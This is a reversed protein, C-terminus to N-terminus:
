CEHNVRAFVRSRELGKLAFLHINDHKLLNDNWEPYMTFGAQHILRLSETPDWGRWRMCALHFELFLIMRKSDSLLEKAGQLVKYEYGEIDMRLLNVDEFKLGQAKIFSDITTGKCTVEKGNWADTKFVSCLNSQDSLYLNVSEDEGSCAYNFAEINDLKNLAINQNLLFFNDPSPEIAFVKGNGIHRAELLTYYGINAGVDICNMGEWLFGKLIGTSRAEHIKRRVLEVNIGFHDSSTLMRFDEDAVRDVVYFRKPNARPKFVFNVILKDLVNKNILNRACRAASVAGEEDLCTKIQSISRQLM